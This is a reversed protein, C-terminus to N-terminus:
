AQKRLLDRTAETVEAQSNLLRSIERNGCAAAQVAFGLNALASNLRAEAPVSTDLLLEIRQILTVVRGYDFQAHLEPDAASILEPILEILWDQKRGLFRKKAEGDLQLRLRNLEAAILTKTNVRQFFGAVLGGLAVGALAILAVSLSESLM